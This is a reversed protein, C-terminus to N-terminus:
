LDSEDAIQLKSPKRWVQEAVRRFNGGFIARIEPKDFGVYELANVIDPLRRVSLTQAPRDYGTGVPWYKDDSTEMVTSLTDSQYRAEEEPDFDLSIGVHETGTMEAVYAVHQAVANPTSEREGLFLNVGSIGIVGGTNACAKIQEDTINRAHDVLSRPNSHSFIVPHTTREMADMTTKFGAHSCDITMGIHNMEDIVERGFETLGKDEDHCGSGALNNRNYAIAMQRVGREYYHNVMDLQGNLGSFEYIHAFIACYISKM